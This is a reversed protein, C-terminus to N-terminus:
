PWARAPCRARCRAPPAREARDARRRGGRRRHPGGRARPRRRRRLRLGRRPRGRCRRPSSRSTPRAAARTSTAGTRSRRSRRWRAGLRAFIEPAVRYAAGNACDLLVRLGALDLAQFRSELERLYDSSRATCSACGARRPQPEGEGALVRGRDRGGGRGAAEHRGRRLVQHRQRPVPQAVRLGRAGPRPRLPSGAASRGAHAARRRDARPRRGGRDRRGARSGADRRVRAHRPHDAGAAREAPSWAAAARGIALALDATLFDGVAGRVGDTGFLRREDPVVPRFKVSPSSRASAPRRSAPRRASRRARTVRSSAAASSSAACTPIPRSLARAVGHRLAGAQASVGGGHIRAVVDM